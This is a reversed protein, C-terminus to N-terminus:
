SRGEDLTHNIYAMSGELELVTVSAKVGGFLDDTALVVGLGATLKERVGKDPNGSLVAKGGSLVIDANVTDLFYPYLRHLSALSGLKRAKEVGDNLRPLVINRVVSPASVAYHEDALFFASRGQYGSKVADVSLHREVDEAKTTIPRTGAVAVLKGKEIKVLTKNGSFVKHGRSVASLTVATKGTGSHGVVLTLGDDGMDLAAAHVPYLGRKLWALRAAGYSLFLLDMLSAEGKWTDRLRHLGGRVFLNCEKSEEFRVILDPKKALAIVSTVFQAAPLYAQALVRATSDDFVPQPVDIRMLLAGPLMVDYSYRSM